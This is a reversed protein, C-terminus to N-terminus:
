PPDPFRDLFRRARPLADHLFQGPARLRLGPFAKSRAEDVLVERTLEVLDAHRGPWFREAKRWTHVLFRDRNSWGHFDFVRHGRTVFVHNGFFGPTPRIWWVSDSPKGWRELFVYALIHCAGCAFFVRDSLAWRLVPDNKSYGPTRVRYM